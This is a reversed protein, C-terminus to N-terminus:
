ILKIILIDANFHCFLNDAVETIGAPRFDSILLLSLYCLPTTGYVDGPGATLLRLLVAIHTLWVDINSVRTM